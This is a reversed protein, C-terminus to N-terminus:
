NISIATTISGNWMDGIIYFQHEGLLLKGSQNLEWEKMHTARNIAYTYGEGSIIVHNQTVIPVYKDDPDDVNSKKDDIQWSWLEKGDTANLAYLVHHDVFYLTNDALAPRHSLNGYLNDLTRKWKISPNVTDFAYLTVIGEPTSYDFVVAFVTKTVADYIANAFRSNANNSPTPISFAPLGNSRNFANLTSGRGTALFYDKTIIPGDFGLPIHFFRRVKNTTLDTEYVLGASPSNGATYLYNNDILPTIFSDGYPVTTTNLSKGTIAQYAAITCPSDNHNSEMLYYLNGNMFAPASVGVINKPYPQNWIKDGTEPQIATLGLYQSSIVYLARNTITIATLSNPDHLIGLPKSWIAKFQQANSPTNVYGTHENNGGLGYWVVKEPLNQAMVQSSLVCIFFLRGLFSHM